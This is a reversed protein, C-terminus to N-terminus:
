SGQDLNQITFIIDDFDEDPDRDNCRYRRGNEMEEVIMAAGEVEYNTIQKDRYVNEGNQLISLYSGKEEWINNIWIFNQKTFVKLKVQKPMTDEWFLMRVRKGNKCIEGNMKCYGTIDIVFGQRKDANTKEISAILTDGNKVPFKDARVVTNGKFSIPQGKSEVFFPTFNPM